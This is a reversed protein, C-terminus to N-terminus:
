RQVFRNGSDSVFAYEQEPDIIIPSNVVLLLRNNRKLQGTPILAEMRKLLDYEKIVHYSKQLQHNQKPNENVRGFGDLEINNIRPNAFMSLLSEADSRRLEVSVMQDTQKRLSDRLIYRFGRVGVGFGQYPKCAHQEM